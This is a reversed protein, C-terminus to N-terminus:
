TISNSEAQTPSNDFIVLERFRGYFPASGDFAAFQITNLTTGLFVAGSLNEGLQAGDQHLAINNVMYRALIKTWVNAEISGLNSLTTNAGETTNLDLTINADLILEVKDDDTGDSLSIRSEETSFPAIEFYIGGSSQGILAAAATKSLVMADRTESSGSTWIIASGYTGAEMQFGTMQLTNGDANTSSGTSDPLVYFTSQNNDQLRYILVRKIDADVTDIVEVATIGAGVATITATSIRIVGVGNSVERLGIYDGSESIKVYCSHVYNTGAVGLGVAAINANGNIQTFKGWSATPYLEFAGENTLTTASTISFNDAYTNEIYINTRQPWVARDGCGGNTFDRPLVNADVAEILGAENVRTLNATKQVTSIPILTAGDKSTAYLVGSSAGTKSAAGRPIIISAKDRLTSM